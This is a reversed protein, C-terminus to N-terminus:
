IIPDVDFVAPPFIQFVAILLSSLGQTPILRTPIFLVLTLITRLVQHVRM